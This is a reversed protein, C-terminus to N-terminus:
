LYMGNILYDEDDVMRSRLKGPGGVTSRLQRLRCGLAVVAVLTLALAVGLGIVTARAQRYRDALSAALSKGSQPPPPPPPPPPPSAPPPPPGGQSTPATPLTHTSVRQLKTSAVRIGLEGDIHKFPKRPVKISVTYRAYHRFECYSADPGCDFLYCLNKITTEYIAVNCRHHNCCSIECEKLSETPLSNLAVAGNAISDETRIISGERHQFKSSGCHYSVAHCCHWIFAIHLTIYVLNM